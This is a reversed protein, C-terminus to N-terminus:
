SRLFELRADLRGSNKEVVIYGGDRFAGANLVTTSGITDIAASEHIHGSICVDPAFEEIFKRAATSGVATGSAIRDCKTEFPPPHCVMLLPRATRVEEYGRRLVSYIEDESFESPTKFPSFNSGGCGFIGIGEVVIGKGHLAIGEREFFPFTEAQDLNGPVALVNHCYARVEDLVKRADEIGGFNTLDGAVIVLNTDRLVESMRALNRTAMHVDSISVIKM